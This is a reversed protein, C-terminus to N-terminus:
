DSTLRARTGSVVLCVYDIQEIKTKFYERIDNVILDDRQLGRTDKFGPTDIVRMKM